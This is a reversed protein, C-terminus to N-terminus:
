LLTQKPEGFRPETGKTKAHEGKLVDAVADKVVDQAHCSIM